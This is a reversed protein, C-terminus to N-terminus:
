ASAKKVALPPTDEELRATEPIQDALKEELRKLLVGTCSELSQAEQLTADASGGWRVRLHEDILYVYGVKSNTMSLPDRLYEMNQNSILYNSQQETPVSARLSRAFLKVLFSKLLNEQVNIQLYQYLPNQSYRLNTGYTFSKAHAESIQTGLMALVTIRGFCMTTTDKKTGNDLTTGTINPLYLSKDERILVKPAIWTKGGHKRTMNLDHFYGKSAEKILHRRQATLSETEMYDKVREMRSRIVTTPRQRVGLPRNLPPLPQDKPDPAPVDKKAKSADNQLRLSSSAHVTRRLCIHQRPYATLFKRLQWSPVISM